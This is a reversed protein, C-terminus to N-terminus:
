RPEPLGAAVAQIQEHVLEIIRADSLGAGKRVAAAFPGAGLQQRLEDVLTSLHEADAAEFPLAYAAGAAALAGHLTAAGLHARLEVLIGFVHRLSLWQNAWDGGRYWLEVVDAYGALAGHHDGERARLWLVETLAFAEIWRNGADRALDVAEELHASAAAPDTSELALGLAYNAQAHATPSGSTAAAALAEGALQAGKVNEGLSTHAVSRMYLAHTLRAPSGTRASAVMRDMWETGRVTDGRYFWANALTREALGSGDVALRAAAAIADDGLAIAGELDGRAFTGYAAMGIVVPYRPHDPAGTMSAVSEAWNTIEAHMCRFSYERLATVLGIALGLDAQEVAWTHAARLNDYDRDLAAVAAAEDPGTLARASQEARALYWAAHRARVEARDAADMRDQGFQRLTELLRYRPLRGDVLQVMSKDVLNALLTSVRAPGLEDAGCVAEAADLGFGGAFVGLRGFLRQEDPDLLDYSWAVLDHLTRHREIMSTQSGALIEFRADLRELLAAPSMARIRAAALEIALPLGDLRRVIEAIVSLEATDPDFGPRAARAREVFLAVAPAGAAVAPTAVGGAVGLPGVRSVHESPLGLVERSTALITVDPCLGLLREAFPAVAARVHECNDLVLLAHRPRLFEVLTEEVSLHQRQQVDVVTAIAAVTSAPDHVPALEAVFVAGAFDDWLEHALRLALRTKGVGGPGTLTVLRDRRLQSVIQAIETARGVLATTEAPLTRPGPSRVVTVPALLTPDDHLLRTELDRLAPSPDLGLEDRLATRFADAHRLAEASRGSRYLALILQHRLRERLPHEAAFAELEGVIEAHEGLALRAEFRDERASVRREELRVAVPRAWDRDAFEEFAGGHWCALATELHTSAAAPDRAARARACLAEFRRADVADDTVRLLYGPPQAVIDADPRLLKRLRSINSQLVGSPDAPPGDGWLEEVMRDSSVVAGAHAALLGLLVRPKPGGITVPHGDRVLTIAGLVRIELGNGDM